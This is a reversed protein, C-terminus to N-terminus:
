ESTLHLGRARATIRLGYLGICCADYRDQDEECLPAYAPHTAVIYNRVQEKTAHGSGVMEKKWVQNDVTQLELGGRVAALHSMLAGMTEALKLSYKRNNGLIVSECFVADADFFVVQDYVYRALEHLQDARRSEESAELAQTVYLTSGVLGDTFVAIAVKRVGLDVGILTM